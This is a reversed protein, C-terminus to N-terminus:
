SSKIKRLGYFLSAIFLFGVGFDIPLGPPPPPPIPPPVTQSSASCVALLVLIIFINKKNM